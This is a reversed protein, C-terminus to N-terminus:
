TETEGENLVFQQLEGLSIRQEYIAKGIIVGFCDLAALERVDNMGAVGGSAVLHLQPLRAMIDRYLALAPGALMGDRGIDTVVSKRVGRAVNTELFAMLDLGTDEEWGGVAVRGNKADAGLILRRAGFTDLWGFFTDPHTAAVSGVTVEKAGSDLAIRLDDESKIGGGFDIQLATQSALRELVKWNVVCKRRAGDLDVVHLYQLGSDEFQKAVEVPDQNYVKKRNYDGQTLRVCRGDIIDIAPIIRM